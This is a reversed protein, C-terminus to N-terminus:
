KTTYPQVEFTALRQITNYIWVAGGQLQGASPDFSGAYASQAAEALDNLASQVQPTELQTGNLSVLPMADQRVRELDARVQNLANDIQNALQRQQATAQPTSVAATLHVNILYVYGPPEEGKGNYLYGPPGLHPTPGVLAVQAYYPVVLLPTNPPVDASVADKGDIYDLIHVLQRHILGTDPSSSNILDDRANVGWEQIKETNRLFWIALGGHLQRIELEPSDALLHRLHALTVQPPNSYFRSTHVDNSPGIPAASSDEETILFRSAYLLLNTRQPDKYLLHVNGQNVQLTGLLLPNEEGGSQEPLLWAYYSKGPAPNSINHLDIEVEDDVGQSNQANLLGSNLFFVNGVVPITTITTPTPNKAPFAYLAVISACTLLFLIAVAILLWQWRGRPRSPSPLPLSPPTIAPPSYLPAAAQANQMRSAASSGTPTSTRPTTPSIPERMPFPSPQPAALRVPGVEPAPPVPSLGDPPMNHPTLHPQHSSLYTPEALDDLSSASLPLDAPIPLNFAKALAVTMLSASSYRDGPDKAMARMIVMSLAPSINPNILAPPTPTSHIHQWRIAMASEGHFPQVGSCMEYLIVGLSYIDSRETGPHNQAQEPSIYLPTGLWMGSMTGSTADMLKAIGFDTLMPEGMPNLATNRKDLLINSPKIDRHIMGKEHAYDIAKSISTFLHVMEIPSPFRGSQSTSRIYHALTEGEICDMVMYVVPVSSEPLQATQFDHIQVINPHRLSAIVRAERAFRMTFETDTQLDTHLIKIAVYRHLQTDFAKWV